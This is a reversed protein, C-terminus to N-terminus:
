IRGEVMMGLDKGIKIMRDNGSWTTLGIRPIPFTNFLYDMWTKLADAVYYDDRYAPHYTAM